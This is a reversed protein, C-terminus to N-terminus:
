NQKKLDRNYLNKAYEQRYIVKQDPLKNRRQYSFQQSQKQKKLCSGQRTTDKTKIM